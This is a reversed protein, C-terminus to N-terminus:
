YHYACAVFSNTPYAPAGIHTIVACLNGQCDIIVREAGPDWDNTNGYVDGAALVPFEYLQGTCGNMNIQEYNNFVKPYNNFYYMRANIARSRANTLDSPSLVNVQNPPAGCVVYTPYRLAREAISTAQNPLTREM